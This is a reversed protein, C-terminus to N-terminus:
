LVMNEAESTAKVIWADAVDCPCPRHGNQSCKVCYVECILVNILRRLARAFNFLNVHGCAECLIDSLNKRDFIRQVYNCDAGLCM